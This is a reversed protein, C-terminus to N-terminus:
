LIKKMLHRPIWGVGKATLVQTFTVKAFDSNDGGRLVIGVDEVGLAIWDKWDSAISPRLYFVASMVTLDRDYGILDGTMFEKM